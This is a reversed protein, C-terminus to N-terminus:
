ERIAGGKIERIAEYASKDLTEIWKFYNKHITGKEVDANLNKSSVYKYQYYGNKIYVEILLDFKSMYLTLMDDTEPPVLKWEAINWGGMKWGQLQENKESVVMKMAEKLTAQDAQAPKAFGDIVAFPRPKSGACALLMMSALFLFLWQKKM